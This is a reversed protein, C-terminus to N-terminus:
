SLSPVLAAGAARLAAEAERVLRQMLEKAGALDHILEASEGCFPLFEDGGGSRVAALM